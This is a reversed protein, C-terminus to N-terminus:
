FTSAIVAGPIHNHGADELVTMSVMPLDRGRSEAYGGAMSTTFVVASLGLGLAGVGVAKGRTDMALPALAGGAALIWGAFRLGNHGTAEEDGTSARAKGNLYMGSGIGTLLMCAGGVMAGAKSYSTSDNVTTTTGFSDNAEDLLWGYALGLAACGVGSWAMIMGGIRAGRGLSANPTGVQEAQAAAAPSVAAAPAAKVGRRREMERELDREAESRSDPRATTQPAPPAESSARPPPPPRGQAAAFLKGVIDPVANLLAKVNGVIIDSTRAEVRTAKINILKSTVVWDADLRAIKVAIIRDVGLAGGINAICSADDCGVLDKQKEFGMLAAIDDQGIVEYDGGNQVASLVYEDFLKPVMGESSKDFATPLVALKSKSAADSPAGALVVLATLLVSGNIPRM